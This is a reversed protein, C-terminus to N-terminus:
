GEECVKVHVFNHYFLGDVPSKLGAFLRDGMMRGGFPLSSGLLELRLQWM